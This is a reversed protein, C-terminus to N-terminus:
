RVRAVHPGVWPQEQQVLVATGAENAAHRGVIEAGRALKPSIGNVVPLGQPVRAIAPSDIPQAGQEGVDVDYPQIVEASEGRSPVHGNSRCRGPRSAPNGTWAGIEERGRFRRQPAKREDRLIQPQDRGIHHCQAVAEVQRPHAHKLEGEVAVATIGVQGAIVRVVGDDIGASM